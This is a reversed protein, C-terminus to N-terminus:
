VKSYVFSLRGSGDSQVHGVEKGGLLAILKATM